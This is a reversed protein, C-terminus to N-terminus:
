ARRKTKAVFNNKFYAYAETTKIVCNIKSGPPYFININSYTTKQMLKTLTYNILKEQPEHLTSNNKRSIMAELFLLNYFKYKNVKEYINYM